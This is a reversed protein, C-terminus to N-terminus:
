LVGKFTKTCGVSQSQTSKPFLGALKHIVTATADFKLQHNDKLYASHLAINDKWYYFSQTIMTIDLGFPIQIQVLTICNIHWIVVILGCPCGYSLYITKWCFYITKYTCNIHTKTLKAFDFIYILQSWGCTLSQKLYLTTVVKCFAALVKRLCCSWIIWPPRAEAFFCNFTKILVLQMM